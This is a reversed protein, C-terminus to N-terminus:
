PLGTQNLLDLRSMASRPQRSARGRGRRVVVRPKRPADARGQVSEFLFQLYAECVESTGDMQIRGRDLWITRDCLSM